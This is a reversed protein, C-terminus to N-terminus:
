GALKCQALSAEICGANEQHKLLQVLLVIHVPLCSLSTVVDGSVAMNLCIQLVQLQVKQDCVWDMSRGLVIGLTRDMAFDAGLRDFHCADHASSMTNLKTLMLTNEHQCTQLADALKLSEKPLQRISSAVNAM